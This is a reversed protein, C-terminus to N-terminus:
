QLLISEQFSSGDRNYLFSFGVALIAGRWWAYWLLPGGMITIGYTCMVNVNTGVAGCWGSDWADVMVEKKICMYSNNTSDKWVQRVLVIILKMWTTARCSAWSEITWKKAKLRWNPYDIPWWMCCTTVQWWWSSSEHLRTTVNTMVMDDHTTVLVDGDHDDDTKVLVDSAPRWPDEGFFDSVHCVVEYERMSCLNNCLWRWWPAWSKTPPRLLSGKHQLHLRMLVVMRVRVGQRGM